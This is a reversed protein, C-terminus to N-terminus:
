GDPVAQGEGILYDSLWMDIPNGHIDAQLKVDVLYRGYKGKRDRHTRIHLVDDQQDLLEKVFESAERGAECARKGFVEPTDAGYLRCRLGINIEFGLDVTFHYTDGDILKKLTATYEYM